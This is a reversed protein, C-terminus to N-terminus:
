KSITIARTWEGFNIPWGGTTIESGSINYKRTTINSNSRQIGTVYINRDSDMDMDWFGTTIGTVQWILGGTSNYRRIIGDNGDFSSAIISNNTKDIRVRGARNDGFNITLNQTGSSNYRRINVNSSRFGFTIINDNSDVDVGWVFEGHDRGWLLNGSPDYKRTTFRGTFPSRDGVTIINDNSDVVIDHVTVTNNVSWLLTGDKTYKRTTINENPSVGGAVIINDNSDVAVCRYDNTHNRSWILTGSPNYKRLVNILPTVSLAVIINGESDTNLGLVTQNTNLPLNGAVIENGNFNYKRLHINNNLVGGVLVGEGYPNIGSKSALLTRYIRSM